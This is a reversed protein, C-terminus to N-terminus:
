SVLAECALVIQEVAQLKAAARARRAHALLEERTRQRLFDALAPATLTREQLLWAAGADVLYAANRTQHDDVAHPFPIMLAAVGVAALEAVTTAGARCIVLDAARYAAAMDDIFALCDARVGADAYHGQLTQLHQRGSQHTVLPRKEAPLLAMAQPVLRNLASAGLSGGVVLVRLPGQRAAFRQEPPACQTLEARLPNGVWDAKDPAGLVRPFATFVRRAVRSLVRNAMGPISNQEHIILPRRLLAAALGAPFSIYGGFGLLVDPRVRRIIGVSGSLARLLQWPLALLRRWGKGRVGGFSLPEFAYGRPPVLREEMSSPAGLWHVCWGADRLGDAVALGPFIHGGTGGAMVLATKQQHANM